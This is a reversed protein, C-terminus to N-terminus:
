QAQGSASGLGASRGHGRSCSSGCAAARPLPVARVRGSQVMPHSRGAATRAPIATMAHTDSPTCGNRWAIMWALEVTSFPPLPGCVPPAPVRPLAVCPVSLVDDAAPRVGLLPELVPLEAAAGCDVAESALGEAVAPHAVDPEACDPVAEEPPDPVVPAWTGPGIM